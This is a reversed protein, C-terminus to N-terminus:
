FPGGQQSIVPAIGQIKAILPQVGSGIVDIVLSPFLGFFIITALLLAFPLRDVLHRADGVHAWKPDLDGFFINRLMRILYALTVAIGLVALITQVPYVDWSGVLVM